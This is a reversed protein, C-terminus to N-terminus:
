GPSGPKAAPTTGSAPAAGGEAADIRQIVEATIDVEDSAYILGSEFKRFILTYGKDKGVQAIIPMVKRDVSALIDDKRKSMERNADDQFRKLAITKDELQQQLDALKDESM